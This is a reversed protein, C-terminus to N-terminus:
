RKLTNQIFNHVTGITDELVDYREEKAFLDQMHHPLVPAQDVKAKEIAEPFKAPHATALCVMPTGANRRCERGAYM